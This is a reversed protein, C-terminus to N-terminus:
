ASFVCFENGDPDALVDWRRDPEPDETSPRIMRAGADVLAQASGHVDWHVRNKAAKPEPVPVFALGDFSTGPLPGISFWSGGGPTHVPV